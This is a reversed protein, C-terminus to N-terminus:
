TKELELVALAPVGEIATTALDPKQKAFEPMAADSDRWLPEICKTVRSGSDRFAMLCVSSLHAHNRLSTENPGMLRM